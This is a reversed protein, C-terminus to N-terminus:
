ILTNLQPVKYTNEQMVDTDSFPISHARADLFVLGLLLKTQLATEGKV